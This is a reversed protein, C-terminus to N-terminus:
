NSELYDIAATLQTDEDETLQAISKVRAEEPLQVEIDPVLGVGEISEGGPLYYLFNTITVASGDSLPYTLTGSGKGFTQQGVLVARDYDQLCGSFLESASASFENVVVAFKMDEPVAMGAKSEWSNSFKQGQMRGELTALTLEPLLYDLMDTVEDALGGSNNRLDFVISQAGDAQLQDVAEKFHESVGKSFESVSIYGIKDNLMRSRVSANDINRRVPNFTLRKSESPRFIEIEVSSDAPGRVMAALTSVDPLATVDEGNVSMFIDGIQLGSEIGPGNEILDTIEISGDTNMAVIAGIGSYEGSFSEEILENQEKTLYMTYPSDLSTALGATMAELIEADSLERYYDNYIYSYVRQLKDVAQMTAEDQDHLRLNLEGTKDMSGFSIFLVLALAATIVFTFLASILATLVYKWVGSSPKGSGAPQPSMSGAVSDHYRYETNDTM